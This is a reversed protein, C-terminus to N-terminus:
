VGVEKLAADLETDSVEEQGEQSEGMRQRMEYLEASHEAEEKSSRIDLFRFIRADARAAEAVKEHTAGDAEYAIWAFYSGDFDRRGGHEMRSVTYALQIKEPAGEAIVTGVADKMGEFVKKAEEQPLEPDIHFGLEYVRPDAHNEVVEADVEQTDIDNKAM